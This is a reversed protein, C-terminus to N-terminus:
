RMTRARGPRGPVTACAQQFGVDRTATERHQLEARRRELQQDAFTIPLGSSVAAGVLRSRFAENGDVGLRSGYRAYAARLLTEAAGASVDSGTLYLRAGDDRISCGAMCYIVTGAATVSDVPAPPARLSANGEPHLANRAPWPRRDRLRLTALAEQDGQAARDRLWELWSPRRLNAAAARAASRRQQKARERDRRDVHRAYASWLMWGVRGRAVLRVAAWRRHSRQELREGEERRRVLQRAIARSRRSDAAERERIYRGYLAASGLHIPRKQYRMRVPGAAIASAQFPGLRRELAAKSLDRAISSAKVAAGEDAVFVIGNGRLQARLGHAHAVEHLEAWSKAARLGDACQRQAFGILSEFGSVAEMDPPRRSSVEVNRLRSERERALHRDPVLGHQQELEACLRDLVLKSYSPWHVRHTTPHVRNIAIHVHLHDTDHHVVSARHHDAFGLEACTRREIAELVHDPPHERFSLVVHFTTQRARSNCAQANEVELVASPVDTSVCNSLRICGVREAKGRDDTLYSLLGGFSGGKRRTAVEKAIM